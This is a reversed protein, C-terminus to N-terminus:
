HRGKLTRIMRTPDDFVADRVLGLVRQRDADLGSPSPDDHRLEPLYRAARRFSECSIRSIETITGLTSRPNNAPSKQSISISPKFRHRPRRGNQCQGMFQRASNSLSEVYRGSPRRRVYTDFALSSKGSGSVGGSFCILKGRPLSLDIDRLNINEGPVKSLSRV